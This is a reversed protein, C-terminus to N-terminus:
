ANGRGHQCPLVVVVCTEVKVGSRKTRTAAWDDYVVFWVFTGRPCEVATVAEVDTWGQRMVAAELNDIGVSFSDDDGVCYLELM